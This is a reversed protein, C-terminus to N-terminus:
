AMLAALREARKAHLVNVLERIQEDTHGAIQAAVLADVEFDPHGVARPGIKVPETFLGKKIDAYHASRAKGRRQLTQPLRLIQM